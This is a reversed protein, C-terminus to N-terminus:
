VIRSRYGHKSILASVKKNKNAKNKPPKVTEDKLLEGDAAGPALAARRRHKEGSGLANVLSIVAPNNIAALAEAAGKRIVANKNGLAKLLAPVALNDM